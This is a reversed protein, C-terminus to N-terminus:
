KNVLEIKIKALSNGRSLGRGGRHLLANINSWKEEDTGPIVGDTASPWSQHEQHWSIMWAKITELSLNSIQYNNKRGRKKNLFDALSKYGNLGRRQDRLATDISRFTETGMSPLSPSKNTPYKASKTYWEDCWDLVKSETLLELNNVNRHEFREAWLDALSKASTGEIKGRRLAGNVSHWTVGLYGTIQGTERKPLQGNKEKYDLAISVIENLSPLKSSLFNASLGEDHLLQSLSEGGSFGRLGERLAMDIAAWSDKGEFLWESNATPWSGTLNFHQNVLNKVKERTLTRGARVGIVGFKEFLIKEISSGGILGRTGSVLASQVASWSENPNGIVGGSKFTPWHGTESHHVLAWDLIEDISLSPRALHHPAAREELLLNALSTQENRLLWGNIQSWTLSYGESVYGDARKPWRGKLNSWSDALELVQQLNLAIRSNVGRVVSIETEIEDALDQILGHQMARSIVRDDDLEAQAENNLLAIVSKVSGNWESFKVEILKIGYAHCAIRKEEDRSVRELFVKQADRPDKGDFYDISKYHQEGQYEIGLKLHPVYIDLEMPRNSSKFRLEPHKFRFLVDDKPFACAVIGYLRIQAKFETKYFAIEQWEHESFVTSVCKSISSGYQQLLTIGYNQQFDIERVQYWDSAVGFGLQEGLWNLYRRQNEKNAWQNRSNGFQWFHLNLEPYNTIVCDALTEYQKLLSLGKFKKFDSLKIQYWDDPSSFGLSDWVYDLFKRHNKRDAWFGNSAVAFKWPLFNFELYESLFDCISKGQVLLSSGFNNQFDKATVQYWDSSQKYGLEKGLWELYDLCRKPERWVGVPVKKFRWFQIKEDYVDELFDLLRSSYHKKLLGIFADPMKKRSKVEWDGITHFGVGQVLQLM